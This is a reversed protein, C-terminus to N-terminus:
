PKYIYPPLETATPPLPLLVATENNRPGYSYYPIRDLSSPPLAGPPPPNHHPAVITSWPPKTKHTFITSLLLSPSYSRARPNALPQFSFLLPYRPLLHSRTTPGVMVPIPWVSTPPSPTPTVFPLCAAISLPVASRHHTCFALAHCIQIHSAEVYLLTRTKLCIHM